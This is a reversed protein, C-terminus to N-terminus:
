TWEKRYRSFRKRQKETVPVDGGLLNYDASISFFKLELFPLPTNLQNFLIM